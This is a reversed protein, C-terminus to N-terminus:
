SFGGIKNIFDKFEKSYTVGFNTTKAYFKIKKRRGDTNENITIGKGNPFGASIREIDSIKISRSSSKYTVIINDGVIEAYEAVFFVEDILWYIIGAGFILFLLGVLPESGLILSKYIVGSLIALITILIIPTYKSKREAIM